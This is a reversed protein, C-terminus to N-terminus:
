RAAMRPVPRVCPLFRMLCIEQHEFLTGVTARYRGDPLKDLELRAATGGGSCPVVLHLLVDTAPPNQGTWTMRRAYSIPCGRLSPERLGNESGYTCLIATGAMSIGQLRVREGAVVITDGDIVTPEGSVDASSPRAVVCLVLAVVAAPRPLNAAGL